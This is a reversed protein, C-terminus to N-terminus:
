DIAGISGRAVLRDSRAAHPIGDKPELSVTLESGKSLLPIAADPLKITHAKQNSVFGLSVPAKTGDEIWLEDVLGSADDPSPVPVMYVKAHPVDISALWGISGDARRLTAVPKAVEPETQASSPNAADRTVRIAWLGSGIAIVIAAAALWPWASASSRATEGAFDPLDLTSAIRRRLHAPPAIRPFKLLWSKLHQQWREVREAFESDTEIRAATRIRDDRELVGVVYEAARIDDGGDSPGSAQETPVNM